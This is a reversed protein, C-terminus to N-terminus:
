IGRLQFCVFILDQELDLNVNLMSTATQFM